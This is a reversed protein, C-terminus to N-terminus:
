SSTPSPANLSRSPAAEQKPEVSQAADTKPREANRELHKSAIQPGAASSLEALAEHLRDTILHASPISKADAIVAFSIQGDYSWATLNLGMGELIPGVSYLNHLRAGAVYLSQAPGRVNSVIVNAPPRHLDAIGLNSHMRVGAAYARRPAYETLDLLVNDGIDKHTRKAHNMADHIALVREAPDDIDTCLSTFVNSLENGQLRRAEKPDKKVAVPVSAILPRDPTESHESLYARLAGAVVGLIVDNVSVDLKNKIAEIESFQVNTTAFSRKSSISGNFVTRPTNFPKAQGLNEGRQTRKVVNVASRVTRALLSPLKRVRAPKERLADFFLRGRSPIPEGRWEGQTEVHSDFPNVGMVNAIMEASASGDAICHHMKGVFAIREEALGHLMWVEWLPRRRDLPSNAINAITQDMQRRGGPAPIRIHRLHHDVNFDPDEVWMPHHLKLPVDVVRLRFPPLLHLRSWVERRFRRFTDDVSERPADVIAIKLTHMHVSDTEGYLFAADLGTMRKM